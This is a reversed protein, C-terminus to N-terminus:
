DGHGGDGPSPATTRDPGRGIQMAIVDMSAM